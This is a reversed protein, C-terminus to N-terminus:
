KTHSRIHDTSTLQAIEMGFFRDAVRDSNMPQQTGAFFFRWLLTLLLIKIMLVGTIERAYASRNTAHNSVMSKSFFQRFVMFNARETQMLMRLAIDPMHTDPM